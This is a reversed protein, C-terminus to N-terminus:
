DLKFLDFAQETTSLNWFWNDSKQWQFRVILGKLIAAPPADALQTKPISVGM